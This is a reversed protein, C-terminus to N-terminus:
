SCVYSSFILCWFLLFTFRCFLQWISLTKELQRVPTNQWIPVNCRIKKCGSPKWFIKLCNQYGKYTSIVICVEVLWRVDFLHCVCCAVLSVCHLGLFFSCLCGRLYSLLIASNRKLWFLCSLNGICAYYISEFCGM